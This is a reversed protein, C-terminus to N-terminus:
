ASDSSLWRVVHGLHKGLVWWYTFLASVQVAAIFFALPRMGLVLFSLMVISLSLLLGVALAFGLFRLWRNKM